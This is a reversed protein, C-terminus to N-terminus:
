FVTKQTERFIWNKGKNCKIVHFLFCKRIVEFTILNPPNPQPGIHKISKLCIDQSYIFMQQQQKNKDKFLTGACLQSLGQSRGHLLPSWIFALGPFWISCLHFVQCCRRSCRTLVSCPLAVASCWWVVHGMTGPLAGCIANGPWDSTTPSHTHTQITPPPAPPPAPPAQKRNLLCYTGRDAAPSRLWSASM